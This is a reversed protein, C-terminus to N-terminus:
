NCSLHSAKIVAGTKMSFWRNRSRDSCRHTRLGNPKPVARGTSGCYPRIPWVAKSFGLRAVRETPFKKTLVALNVSEREFWGQGRRRRPTGPPM